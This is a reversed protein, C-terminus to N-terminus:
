AVQGGIVTYVQAQFYTNNTNSFPLAGAGSPVAGDYPYDLALYAIRSPVWGTSNMAVALYYGSNTTQVNAIQLTAGTAGSIDVGNFRWQYSTAGTALATLSVTSGPVVIQNTPQVSFVPLGDAFAMRSFMLLAILFISKMRFGAVVRRGNM